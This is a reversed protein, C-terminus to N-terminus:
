KLLVLKRTSIFAGARLDNGFWAVVLSVVVLGEGESAPFVTVLATLRALKKKGVRQGDGHIKRFM